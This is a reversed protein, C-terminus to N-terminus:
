EGRESEDAPEKVSKDLKEATRLTMRGLSSSETSAEQFIQRTNFGGMEKDELKKIQKGTPGKALSNIGLWKLMFFFM